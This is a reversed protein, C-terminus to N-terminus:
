IGFPVYAIKTKHLISFKIISYIRMYYRRGGATGPGLGRLARLLPIGAVIDIPM